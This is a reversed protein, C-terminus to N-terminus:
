TGHLELHLRSESVRTDDLGPAPWCRELTRIALDAVPREKPRLRETNKLMSFTPKEEGLPIRVRLSDFAHDSWLTRCDAIAKAVAAEYTQNLKTADPQQAHVRTDRAFLLVAIILIVHASQAFLNGRKV